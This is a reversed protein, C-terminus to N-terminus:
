SPAPEQQDTTPPDVQGLEIAKRTLDAKNGLGLKQRIRKVYTDITAQEFGARDRIEIQRNIIRRSRGLPGNGKGTWMPGTCRWCSVSGRLRGYVRHPRYGGYRGPTQSRYPKRDPGLLTYLKGSRTKPLQSSM